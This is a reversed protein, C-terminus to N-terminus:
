FITGQWPAEWRQGALSASIKMVSELPIKDMLPNEEPDEIEVSRNLKISSKEKVPEHKDNHRSSKSRHSHSKSKTEKKPSQQLSM